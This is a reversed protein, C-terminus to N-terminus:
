KEDTKPIKVGLILKALDCIEHSRDIQECVNVYASFTMKDKQGSDYLIYNDCYPAPCLVSEGSNSQSPQTLVPTKYCSEWSSKKVSFTCGGTNDNYNEKFESTEKIYVYLKGAGAPTKIGESAAFDVLAKESILEDNSSYFGAMVWGYGSAISSKLCNIEAGVYNVEGTIDKIKIIDGENLNEFILKPKLANGNTPLHEIPGQTALVSYGAWVSDSLRDLFGDGNNDLTGDDCDIIQPASSLSASDYVKKDRPPYVILLEISAVNWFGDYLDSNEGFAILKDKDICWDESQECNLETSDAIV